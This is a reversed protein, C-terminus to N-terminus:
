PAIRTEGFWFELPDGVRTGNGRTDSTWWKALKRPETLAEYVEDPTAKVGVQFNIEYSM